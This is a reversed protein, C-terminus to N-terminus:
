RAGGLLSKYAYIPPLIGAGVLRAKMSGAVVSRVKMAGVRWMGYSSVGERELISAIERWQRATNRYGSKQQEHMRFYAWNANTMIPEAIKSLRLWLDYDMVMNLTPDWGGAQKLLDRRFFTGPQRVLDPNRLLGGYTIPPSKRRTFVPPDFCTTTIDGVAWAVSNSTFRDAVDGLINSEYYDDSNIWGIVDGRALALGKNLADAQGRDPESLWRVDSYKRLISVTEDTSGGDIVIHEVNPCKQDRVSRITQEIYRGQNFSPTLISIAIPM